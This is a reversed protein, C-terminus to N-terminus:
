MSTKRTSSWAIVMPVKFGFEQISEAVKDVSADNHRPNNKYSILESTKVYEIQM